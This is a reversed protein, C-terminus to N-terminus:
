PLSPGDEGVLGRAWGLRDFDTVRVGTLADPRILEGTEEDRASWGLDRGWARGAYAALSLSPLAQRSVRWAVSDTYASAAQEPAVPIWRAHQEAQEVWAHASAFDASRQAAEAARLAFVALEGDSAGKLQLYPWVADVAAPVDAHRGEKWIAQLDRAQSQGHVLALIPALCSVGVTLWGVLMAFRRPEKGAVFVAIAVGCGAAVPCLLVNGYLAGFLIGFGANGIGVALLFRRTGERPRRMDWAVLGALLVPEALVLALPLDRRFEVWSGTGFWMCCLMAVPMISTAALASWLLSLRHRLIADDVFAAVNAWRRWGKSAPKQVPGPLPDPTLGDASESARNTEADPM